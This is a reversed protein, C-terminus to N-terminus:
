RNAGSRHDNHPVEFRFVQDYRHGMALDVCLNRLDYVVSWQTGGEPDDPVEGHASDLLSMAAATDLSGGTRALENHVTDYRWCLGPRDAEDVRCLRYNTACAWPDPTRLVHMTGEWYEVLAYDGSADAVLYHICPGGTMDVNVSEFIDLAEDVSAATDLIRRMIELSGVTEHTTDHPMETDAVAAMGIAVGQENLGDFTWLPTQLLMAVRDTPLRDLDDGLEEPVLYGLDVMSISTYADPPEAILVLVPHRPWDFNRGYVPTEPHDTATFLTCAWASEGDPADSSSSYAVERYSGVYHMMYLPHDSLKELSELTRIQEDTFGAAAAPATPQGDRALWAGLIGLVAVGIVLALARKM